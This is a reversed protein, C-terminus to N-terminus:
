KIKNLKEDYGLGKLAEKLKPRNSIDLKLRERVWWNGLRDILIKDFLIFYIGFSLILFITDLIMCICFLIMWIIFLKAKKLKMNIGNLKILGNLLSLLVM